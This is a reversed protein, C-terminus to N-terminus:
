MWQTLHPFAPHTCGAPHMWTGAQKEVMNSNSSMLVPPAAPASSQPSPPETYRWETYCWLQKHFPLENWHRDTLVAEALAQEQKNIEKLLCWIGFCTKRQVQPASSTQRSARPRSVLIFYFIRKTIVTFKKSKKVTAWVHVQPFKDLSMWQYWDLDCLPGTVSNLPM